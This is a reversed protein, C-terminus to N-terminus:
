SRSLAAAELVAEMRDLHREVSFLARARRAGAEGMRQRRTRNGALQEMASSLGDVNGPACLLGTEGEVVMEPVGGGGYGVVPRGAVMAEMVVRPLPDPWLTTLALVDVAALLGWIEPQPPVVRIREAAPGDGIVRHLEAVFSSPGHGAILFWLDPDKESVRHAARVFDIAGKHTVLQSFLGFVTAEEPVDFSRRASGRDPFRRPPDVGNHIVELSAGLGEEQLWQAVADSVAVIRNAHRRLRDAFWRRRAGPPMIEHIHWVVPCGAARAAAAGRLHPLCNVHVVDPEFEAFFSKLAKTGPDPLLFRVGRV